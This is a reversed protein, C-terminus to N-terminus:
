EDYAQRWADLFALFDRHEEPSSFRQPGPMYEPEVWEYRRALARLKEPAISMIEAWRVVVATQRDELDQVFAALEEQQEIEGRALEMAEDYGIDPADRVIARAMLAPEPQVDARLAEEFARRWKPSKLHEAGWSLYGRGVEGAQALELPTWGHFKGFTIQEHM